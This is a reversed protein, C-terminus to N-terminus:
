RDYEILLHDHSSPTVDSGVYRFHDARTLRGKRDVAYTWLGLHDEALLKTPYVHGPHVETMRVSTRETRVVNHAVHYHRVRITIGDNGRYTTDVTTTGDSWSRQELDVAGLSDARSRTTLHYHSGDRYRHAEREIHWGASDSETYVLAIRYALQWRTTWEGHVRVLTDAPGEDVCLAVTTDSLWRIRVKTYNPPRLSEEYSGWHLHLTVTNAGHATRDFLFPTVHAFDAFGEMNFQATCM